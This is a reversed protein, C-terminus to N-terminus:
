SKKKACTSCLFVECDECTVDIPLEHNQCELVDVQPSGLLYDENGHAM